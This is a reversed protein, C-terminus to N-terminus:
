VISLRNKPIGIHLASKANKNFEIAGYTRKAVKLDADVEGSPLEQM